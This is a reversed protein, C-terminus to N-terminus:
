FRIGHHAEACNMCIGYAPMFWEPAELRRCTRCWRFSRRRRAAIEDAVERLLEVPGHLDERRFPHRSDFHWDPQAWEVWRGVPRALLFTTGDFGVAVQAPEGAVFWTERSGEPLATERRWGAGLVEVLRAEEVGLFAALEADGAERVRVGADGSQV